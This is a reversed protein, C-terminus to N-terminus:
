AQHGDEIFKTNMLLIDARENLDKKTTFHSERVHWDWRHTTKQTIAMKTYNRRILTYGADLLKKQDRQTM